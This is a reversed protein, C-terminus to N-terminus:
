SREAMTVWPATLSAGTYAVSNKPANSLRTTSVVPMASVSTIYAASNPPSRGSTSDSSMHAATASSNVATCPRPAIMAGALLLFVAVILIGSM